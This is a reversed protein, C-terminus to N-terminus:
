EPFVTDGNVYERWQEPTYTRYRKLSGQAIGIDFARVIEIYIYDISDVDPATDLIIRAVDIFTDHNEAQVERIWLSASYGTSQGRGTSYNTNYMFNISHTPVQQQVEDIVAWADEMFEDGVLNTVLMSFGIPMAIFLGVLAGMVFKHMTRLPPADALDPEDNCKVVFSDVLMDHLTRRAPRNFIVLYFEAIGIFFIVFVIVSITWMLTKPAMMSLGDFNLYLLGMPLYRIMSDRVSLLEGDRNVVKIKMTRKGSTQGRSLRSNGLGFYLMGIGFGLISGWPGLGALFDFAFFGLIMGIIALLIGDIILAVARRWFGAIGPIWKANSNSESTEEEPEIVDGSDAQEETM